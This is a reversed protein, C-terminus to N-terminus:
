IPCVVRFSSAFKRSYPSLFVNGSLMCNTDYFGRVRPTFQPSISPVMNNFEDFKITDEAFVMNKMNPSPCEGYLKVAATTMRSVPNYHGPDWFAEFDHPYEQVPHINFIPHTSVTSLSLSM